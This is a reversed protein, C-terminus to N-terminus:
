GLPRQGSRAARDRGPFWWNAQGLLAMLSPVLVLRIWTADLTVAFALGLGFERTPVLRTFGFSVFISVMIAAASSITGATRELGRAVAARNDGLARYERAIASLLFVEYDMSLGFLITFLVLVIFANLGGPPTLGLWSAGIGDQFVYVLFGYSALVSALNVAIASLPIVLSRFQILLVLFTILLVAPVVVWLRSFIEHDFDAILAPAGTVHATVLGALEAFPDARLESVLAVAEHSEPAAHPVLALIAVSGDPSVVNAAPGRFLEPLSDLGGDAHVGLGRMARELDTFGRVAAIRSDLALREALELVVERSEDALVSEGEPTELVLAVPGMWGPAFDGALREYGARSELEGELSSAGMNWSSLRRVPAIFFALVVLSALLFVVPRRMVVTAWTSWLKAESVRAASAGRPWNIRVGFTAMLAPLLTLTAFVSLVVVAIGGFALARLFPLRVLCLAAFGIGVAAGCYFVTHGAERVADVAARESSAGGALARRFATLLFLAYDVGVGLGIMSVTNQAFVSVSMWDSLLTLAALSMTMASLALALPLLAALPAGFVVLLILLTIPLGIREARLLDSSSQRNLDYLVASQGTIECRFEAELEARAVAARLESTALEAAGFTEARPHVVLLATHESEGLLDESLTNWYSLVSAVHGSDLLSKTVSEAAAAFRADRVPVSDSHLAALAPYFDGAPMGAQVAREVAVLSPSGPVGEAAGKLVSPLRLALPAAAAVLVAWAAIVIWRRRVVFAALADLIM